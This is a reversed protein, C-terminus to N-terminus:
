AKEKREPEFYSLAQCNEPIKYQMYLGKIFPDHKQSRLTAKLIAFVFLAEIQLIIKRVSDVNYAM